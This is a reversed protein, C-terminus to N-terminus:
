DKNNSTHFFPSLHSEFCWRMKDDSTWVHYLSGGGPRQEKEPAEFVVGEIKKNREGPERQLSVTVNQGVVFPM